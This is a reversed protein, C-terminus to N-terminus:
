SGAERMAPPRVLGSGTAGTGGIVLIDQRSM